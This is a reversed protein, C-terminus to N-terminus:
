FFKNLEIRSSDVDFNEYISFNNQQQQKTIFKGNILQILNKSYKSFKSKFNFKNSKLFQKIEVNKEGIDVKCTNQMSKLHHYKRIVFKVNNKDIENKWLEIINDNEDVFREIGDVSKFVAYTKLLNKNFKCKDFIIELFKNCSLYKKLENINIKIKNSGIQVPIEIFILGSIM